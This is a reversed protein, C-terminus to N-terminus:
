VKDAETVFVAPKLEYGLDFHNGIVTHDLSVQIQAEQITLIVANFAQKAENISSCGSVFVEWMRSPEDYQFIVREKTNM